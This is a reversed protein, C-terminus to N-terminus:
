LSHARSEDDGGRRRIIDFDMVFSALQSFMLHREQNSLCTMEQIGSAAPLIKMRGPGDVVVDCLQKEGNIVHSLNYQPALGLLVDLNGLGLDADYILVRKGFRGLAYGLNAVINTKGVGGKGSTITIIKPHHHDKRRTRMTRAKEAKRNNLDIIKHSAHTDKM